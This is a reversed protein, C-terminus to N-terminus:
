LRGGIKEIWRLEEQAVRRAVAEREFLKATKELVLTFPRGVRRTTHTLPLDRRDIVQHMHSRDAQALPWEFRQQSAARLFRTLTECRQCSCRLAVSISWDNQARAPARQRASLERASSEYIRRLGLARLAEPRHRGEAARLVGVQLPLLDGPKEILADILEQHLGSQRAVESGEILALTPRGLGALAKAREAESCEMKLVEAWHRRLWAWQAALVETALTQGPSKRAALARSLAALAASMWKLRPESPEYGRDEATWQKVMARCWDLGYSELLAALRPALRATLDWLAFPKLLAAATQADALPGAIKLTPELLEGDRRVCGIWFPLLQRALFVAEDTRKSALAKDIRGLAWRSDVKARIVFARARPWLVVAARHYWHDVTAGANGTYGEHETEFPEFAEHPTSYCLEGNAVGIQGKPARTPGSDPAIWHRLEVGSDILETLQLAGGSEYDDEDGDDYRNWRSRRFDYEEECAWTEHVDALALFIECDLHRAVRRLASARAADANKLRSWALAHPTYEHDLLYVLRDAPSPERGGTYTTTPTEFLRRICASLAGISKPVAAEATGAAILNYTLALRYGSRVPRVEHHCDAYFAAFTLQRASGRVTQQEGQHEIVLEGGTFRSPLIVVLTGLMDDAKESDQHPAFFQGREYILLNHLQARLRCGKPLGLDRRIRELEPALTKAWRHEDLGLREVPIERTDRVRRDLRTKEKHGYRAPRGLACLKRATAPGVPLPIRGAGEVELHLDQPGRASRTAFTGGAAIRGLLRAIDELTSGM